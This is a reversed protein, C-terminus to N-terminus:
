PLSAKNEETIRQLEKKRFPKNLSKTYKHSDNRNDLSKKQMIYSMKELLLRNEREM